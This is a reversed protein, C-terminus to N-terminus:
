IISYLSMAVNDIDPSSITLLYLASFYFSALCKPWGQRELKAHLKSLGVRGFHGADTTNIGSRIQECDTQRNYMIINWNKRIYTHETHNHLQQGTTCGSAHCSTGNSMSICCVHLVTYWTIRCSHRENLLLAASQNSSTFCPQTESTCKLRNERNIPLPVFDQWGNNWECCIIPLRFHAPLASSLKVSHCPPLCLLCQMCKKLWCSTEVVIPGEDTTCFLIHAM